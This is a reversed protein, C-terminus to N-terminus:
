FQNKTYKKMKSKINSFLEFNTKLGCNTRYKLLKIKYQFLKSYSRCKILFKISFKIKLKIKYYFM